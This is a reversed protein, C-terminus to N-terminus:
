YNDCKVITNKALDLARERRDDTVDDDDDDETQQVPLLADVLSSLADDIRRERDDPMKLHTYNM